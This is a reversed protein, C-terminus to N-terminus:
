SNENKYQEKLERKRELDSKIKLKLDKMSSYVLGGMGVFVGFIGGYFFMDTKRKSAKQSEQYQEFEPLIEIRSIETELSRIAKDPNNGYFTEEFEEIESTKFPLYLFTEDDLNKKTRQLTKLSTQANQYIEVIEPSEDKMSESFGGLSSIGGILAITFFAKAIRNNQKIKKEIGPPYSAPQETTQKRVQETSKIMTM